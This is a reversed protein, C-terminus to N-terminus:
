GVLDASEVSAYLLMARSKPMTQLYLADWGLRRLGRKMSHQFITLVFGRGYSTSSITKLIIFDCFLTCLAHYTVSSSPRKHAQLERASKLNTRVGMKEGSSWAVSEYEADIQNKSM